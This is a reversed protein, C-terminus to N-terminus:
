RKLRRNIMALAEQAESVCLLKATLFYLIAATGCTACLAIIKWWLAMHSLDAFLFRNAAWCLAAMTGGAILLKMLLALM